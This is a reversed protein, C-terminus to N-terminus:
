QQDFDLHPYHQKVCQPCVTHSLRVNSHELLYHEIVKWYGRHDRIRKCFSCMPLLGSLIKSAGSGDEPGHILYDDKKERFIDGTIDYAIGRFGIPTFDGNLMLCASMEYLGRNGSRKKVELGYKRIPEGTRYMRKFKKHTERATRPALYDHYGLGKLEQQSYGLVSPLSTNFYIFDGRLDTEFYAEKLGEMIARFGEQSKALAKEADTDHNIFGMKQDLVKYSYKEPM